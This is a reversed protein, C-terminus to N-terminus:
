GGPKVNLMRRIRTWISTGVSRGREEEVKALIKELVDPPITSLDFGCHPCHDYLPKWSMGSKLIKVKGDAPM